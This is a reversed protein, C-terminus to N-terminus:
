TFFIRDKVKLDTINLLKCLAKIEGAKIQTENEIKRILSQHSINLKNALYGYKLGKNFILERLLETNTMLKNGRKGNKRNM